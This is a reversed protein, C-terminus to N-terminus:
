LNDIALQKGSKPKSTVSVAVPTEQKPTEEEDMSNLLSEMNFTGGIKVGDDKILKVILAKYSVGHGTLIPKIAAKVLNGGQILSTEAVTKDTNYVGIPKVNRAAFYWQGKLFPYKEHDVKEDDGDKFLSLDGLKASRGANFLKKMEAVEASLADIFPKALADNKDILLTVEYRPQAQQQGEKPAPPEKPKVLSVWVARAVPTNHTTGTVFGYQPHRYLKEQM